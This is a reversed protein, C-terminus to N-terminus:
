EATRIMRWAAARGSTRFREAAQARGARVRLFASAADPDGSAARALMVTLKDSSM